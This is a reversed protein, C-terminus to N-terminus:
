SPEYEWWFSKDAIGHAVQVASSSGNSAIAKSDAGCKGGCRGLFQVVSNWTLGTQLLVTIPNM